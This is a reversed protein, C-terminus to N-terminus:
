THKNKTIKAIPHSNIYHTTTLKTKLPASANPHPMPTPPKPSPHPPPATAPTYTPPFHHPPPPRAATLEHAPLAVFSLAVSVGAMTAGAATGHHYSLVLGVGVSLWGLVVAVVM